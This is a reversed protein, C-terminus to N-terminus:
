LPRRRRLLALSCLLSLPIASVIGLAITGAALQGGNMRGTGLIFALVGLCGLRTLWFFFVRIAARAKPSQPGRWPADSGDRIGKFSMWTHPFGLPISLLWCLGAALQGGPHGAGSAGGALILFSWALLSLVSFGNALVGRKKVVIPPVGLASDPSHPEQM